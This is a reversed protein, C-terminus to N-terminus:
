EGNAPLVIGFTTGYDVETQYEIAGGHKQVIAAAISLGLGTGGQKTTFFPDFLRKQVEPPIGKGNDAVELVAVKKQENGIRKREAHARLRIMGDHGIAEAANQVLNILVQEIKAADMTVALAPIDELIVRIHNRALEPGLLDCVTRLPDGVEAPALQLEGQRGFLLFENVIRELRLIEREVVKSDAHEESGAKLRKQLLFVAGKIATLPNRIEHAVGAALMGLSALKEQRELLAEGEILRARLPAVMQRYVVLALVGALLLLASLSALQFAWARGISISAATLLRQRRELHADRLARVGDFLRESELRLGAYEDITASAEGAAALRALLDRAAKRYDDYGRDIQAMAAKEEASRLKAKQTDIWQDLEHSARIFAPSDPPVHSRGYGYLLNNLRLVHEAFEDAIRFSESNVQNLQVRLAEMESRQQAGMFAITAGVLLVGAVLAVLRARIRYNM